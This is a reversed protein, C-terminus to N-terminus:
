ISNANKNWKVNKSIQENTPVEKNSEWKSYIQLSVNLNVKNSLEKVFDSQKNFGKSIRAQSLIQGLKKDAEIKIIEEETTKVQKQSLKKETDKKGIEIKKKHKPNLIITKFDQHEM